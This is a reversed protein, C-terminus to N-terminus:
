GASRAQWRQWAARVALGQLVLWLGPDLLADWVNGTPLRTLVFLALVALVAGFSATKLAGLAWALVALGAVAASAAPSFGWSYVSVPWWALTDLLLVWGWAIGLAVGLNLALPPSAWGAARAEPARPSKALVSSLCLAVTMWSPAQFALGLWFTPSASGPVWAWLVLLLCLGLRYAPRWWAGVWWASAGLVVSWALPWAIRMLVPEPLLPQETAWFLSILTSTNM